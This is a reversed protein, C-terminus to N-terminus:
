GAIAARQCSDTVKDMAYHVRSVSERGVADAPKRALDQLYAVEDRAAPYGADVGAIGAVTDFHPRLGDVIPRMAAPDPRDGARVNAAFDLWAPCSGRLEARVMQEVPPLTTPPAPPPPPPPDSKFLASAGLFSGVAVLIAVGITMMVRVTRKVIEPDGQDVKGPFAHTLMNEVSAGRNRWAPWRIVLEDGNRLHVRAQGSVVDERVVVDAVSDAPVLRSSPQQAALQSATLNTPTGRKAIVVSGDYVVVDVSRRRLKGHRVVGVPAGPHRPEPKPAEVVAPLTSPKAKAAAAAAARRKSADDNLDLFAAAASLSIPRHAEEVPAPVPAPAPTPAPATPKRLSAALSQGDVPADSPASSETAVLRLVEDLSEERSPAPPRAPPPPPMKRLVEDLSEKGSAPPPVRRLLDDFSDGSPVAPPAPRAPEVTTGSPASSPPAPMRRLLDDLSEEGAAPPAPAPRAPAVPTSGALATPGPAPAAVSPARRRSEASPADAPPRDAPVTPAPRPPEASVPPAAPPARHLMPDLTTGVGEAPAAGGRSARFTSWSPADAPDAPPAPAAEVPPPPTPAVRPAATVPSSGSSASVVGAAVPVAEPGAAAETTAVPPPAAGAHDACVMCAGTARNKLRGCRECIM